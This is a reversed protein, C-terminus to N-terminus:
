MDRTCPHKRFKRLIGKIGGLHSSGHNSAFAPGMLKVFEWSAM